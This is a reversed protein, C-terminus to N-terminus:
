VRTSILSIRKVVAVRAPLAGDIPVPVHVRILPVTYKVVGLLGVEPMVPRPTPALVKRQVIIFPGHLADTSSTTIVLVAVGM